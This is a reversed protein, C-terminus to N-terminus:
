NTIAENGTDIPKDDVELPEPQEVDNNPKPMLNEKEFLGMQELASKMEDQNLEKFLLLSQLKMIEADKAILPNNNASSAIIFSYGLKALIYVGYNLEPM